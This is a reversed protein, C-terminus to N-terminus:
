VCVQMWHFYLDLLKRLTPAHSFPTSLGVRCIELLLSVNDRNTFWMEKMLETGCPIFMNYRPIVPSPAPSGLVSDGNGSGRQSSSSPLIWMLLYKVVLEKVKTYLPNSTNYELKIVSSMRYFSSRSHTSKKDSSGQPMGQETNDPEPALEEM